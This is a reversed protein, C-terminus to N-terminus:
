IVEQIVKAHEVCGNICEIYVKQATPDLYKKMTMFSMTRSSDTTHYLKAVNLTLPIM